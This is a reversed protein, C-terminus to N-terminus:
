AGLSPASSSATLPAAPGPTGSRDKSLPDGFSLVAPVEPRPVPRLGKLLLRLAEWHIGGVVTATLLPVGALAALLTRTTLPKRAGKFTASLVPGAEDTELIRVAIACAPPRLRFLYRMAMGNFPSVYFLKDREQRLGAPSMEGAVVPAVYSHHEGFTNRVEYIVGALSGAADYAYYVSLPNFVLGLLRPYCLLLVRGGPLDLGAQALARRAHALLSTGDRPGHDKEYFSLLNPRNVSFVPSACGAEDLRGLDIMLNFVRYQFRHPVPKLRAHMVEGVYLCAADAPAPFTLAPLRSAASM